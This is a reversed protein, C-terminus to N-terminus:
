RKKEKRPIRSNIYCVECTAPSISKAEIGQYMGVPLINPGTVTDTFIDQKEWSKTMQVTLTTPLPITLAPDQYKFMKHQGM